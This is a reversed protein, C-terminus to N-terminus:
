LLEQQEGRLREIENLKGALEEPTPLDEGSRVLIEHVLEFLGPFYPTERLWKGYGGRLYSHTPVVPRRQGDRHSWVFDSPLPFEKLYTATDDATWVVPPVWPMTEQDDSM